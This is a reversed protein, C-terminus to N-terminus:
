SADSLRIKLKILSKIFVTHSFFSNPWSITWYFMSLFQRMYVYGVRVMKELICEYFRANEPCREQRSTFHVTFKHVSDDAICQSYTCFWRSFSVFLDFLLNQLTITDLSSTSSNDTFEFDNIKDNRYTTTFIILEESSPCSSSFLNNSTKIIM